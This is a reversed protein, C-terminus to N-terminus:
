AYGISESDSSTSSQSSQSIETELRRRNRQSSSSSHFQQTSEIIISIEHSSQAHQKPPKHTQSQKHNNTIKHTFTRSFRHVTDQLKKKLHHTIVSLSSRLLQHHASLLHYAISFPKNTKNHKKEKITQTHTYTRSFHRTNLNQLLLPHYTTLSLLSSYQHYCPFYTHPIIMIFSVFYVLLVFIIRQFRDCAFLFFSHHSMSLCWHRSITPDAM